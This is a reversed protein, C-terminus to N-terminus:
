KVLKDLFSDNGMKGFFLTHKPSKLTIGEVGNTITESITFGEKMVEHLRQSVYRQVSLRCARKTMKLQSFMIENNVVLKGTIRNCGDFGNITMKESDFDLIARAKRVEKGDMIRLHWNGDLDDLDITKASVSLTYLVAFLVALWVNKKIM